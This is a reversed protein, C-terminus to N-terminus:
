SEEGADASAYLAQITAAQALADERGWRPPSEGSAVRAFDELEAAYPNAAEVEIREVAEDGDRRLEILPARGRWPDPLRLVGQDGVAELDHRRAAQFSSEFQALVDGPFRLTAAFAVDVGDGGMVQVGHVREPEAGTIFRAGSVCYCGLDMLSGGDLARVMRIDQPDTLPFSFSARISRLTGIAGAELLQRLRAAQPTHRWMFGEALLRGSADAADFMEEVDAVRRGLPKECLVHKGAQLAKISWEAHMSNPLPNYVADVEPDALLREYSGHWRPAGILGAQVRARESDRSAVAVVEAADTAQAGHALAGGIRATSLLGWRM